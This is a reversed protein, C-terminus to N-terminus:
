KRKIRRTSTERRSFLREYFRAVRAWYRAYKTASIAGTAAGPKRRMTESVSAKGRGLTSPDILKRTEPRIYCVLRVNGKVPAGGPPNRRGGRKKKPPNM